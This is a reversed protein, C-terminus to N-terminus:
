TLSDHIGEVIKSHGALAALKGFKPPEAADCSAPPMSVARCEGYASLIGGWM